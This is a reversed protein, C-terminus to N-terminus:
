EKNQLEQFKKVFLDLVEQEKLKAKLQRNELQLKEVETMEEISKTRGRGDKLAAYGNEKSKLVWSRIQQYSTNFHEAAQVYTHKGATVYEVIEIREEFTTKRSMIRVQKRSPTATLAKNTGNYQFKKIWDRLQRENRIGFRKSIHHLSGEHNLYAIVAQQKIESSYRTWNHREELGKIGDQKYLEQWRELSHQGIGYSKLYAAKTLETTSLGTIIAVKEEPTFRTRPM